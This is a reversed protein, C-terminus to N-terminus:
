PPIHSQWQVTRHEFDIKENPEASLQYTTAIDKAVGAFPKIEPDEQIFVQISYVNINNRKIVGM